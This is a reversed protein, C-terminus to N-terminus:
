RTGGGAAAHCSAPREASGPLLQESLRGRVVRARSRELIDAAEAGKMRTNLPVLVGGAAHVGCAAVIWESLNPAWLAVRDGAQVGLSMLARAAQRSLQQLQAYSISKGNEVIAARGAFRSVVDALM